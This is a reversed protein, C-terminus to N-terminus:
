VRVVWARGVICKWGVSFFLSVELDEVAMLTGQASDMEVGLVCWCWQYMCGSDSFLRRPVAV